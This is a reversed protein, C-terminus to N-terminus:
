SPEDKEKPLHKRLERLRKITATIEDDLEYLDWSMHSRHRKMMEFRISDLVPIVIAGAVFTLIATVM